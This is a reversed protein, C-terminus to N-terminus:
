GIQVAPTTEWGFLQRLGGSALPVALGLSSSLAGLVGFIVLFDVIKGLATRTKFGAKEGLM